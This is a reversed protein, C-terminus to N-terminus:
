RSQRRRATRKPRSRASLAKTSAIRSHTPPSSARRSPDSSPSITRASTSNSKSITLNALSVVYGKAGREGVFSTTVFEGKEVARELITGAVPARIITNELQTQFFDVSGRAEVIQGRVADIQEQRPGIRVLEFSKQLANMRATERDYRAKADDLTQKAVVGDASLRQNRDLNIRANEVNAKAEELDAQARSIEEPRSGTELEKLKAELAQLRGRAQQLQAKYEEDELRVIVQGEKVKDGKDVGIWAVRGLVKSAVQIKHAAVIYGTANLIVDAGSSGTPAPTAVRAIEVETAANLVGNLYRGPWLLLFLLVGGIIWRTAWRSPETQSRKSRDIRLSELESDM